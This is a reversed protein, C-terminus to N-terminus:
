CPGMLEGMCSRAYAEFKAEGLHNYLTCAESLTEISQHHLGLQGYEVGLECKLHSLKRKSPKPDALAKVIRRELVVIGENEEGM